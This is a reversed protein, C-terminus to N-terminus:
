RLWGRNTAVSLASVVGRYGLCRSVSLRGLAQPLIPAVSPWAHSYVPDRPTSLSKARRCSTAFGELVQPYSATDRGRRLVFGRPRPQENGHPQLQSFRIRIVVTPNRVPQYKAAETLKVLSFYGIPGLARLQVIRPKWLENSDARPAALWGAAIDILCRYKGSCKM